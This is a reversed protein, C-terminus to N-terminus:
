LKGLLARMLELCAKIQRMYYNNEEFFRSLQDATLSKYFTENACVRAIFEVAGGEGEKVFLSAGYFDRPDICIGNAITALDDAAEDDNIEIELWGEEEEIRKAELGNAM